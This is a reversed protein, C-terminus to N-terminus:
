IKDNNIWTQDPIKEGNISITGTSCDYALELNICPDVYYVQSMQQRQLMQWRANNLRKIKEQTEDHMKKIEELQKEAFNLDEPNSTLHKRVHWFAKKLWKLDKRAKELELFIEFNTM